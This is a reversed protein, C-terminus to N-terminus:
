SSAGEKKIANFAKEVVENVKERRQYTTGSETNYIYGREIKIIEVLTEKLRDGSYLSENKQLDESIDKLMGLMENKDDPM